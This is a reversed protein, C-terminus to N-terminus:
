RFDNSHGGLAIKQSNENKQVFRIKKERRNKKQERIPQQHTGYFKKTLSFMFHIFIVM